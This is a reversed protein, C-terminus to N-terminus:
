SVPPAITINKDYDSFQLQIVLKSRDGSKSTGEIYAQRIRYDAVDLWVKFKFGTFQMDLFPNKLVPAIEVVRCNQGDVKETGVYKISTISQFDFNALPQLESVFLASQSLSNGQLTLWRGSFQDKMYSTDKIQIFDVPTNIMTGTISVRDPAVWKGQIKSIYTTRNDVELTSESRYLFSSSARTNAVAKQLMEEPPLRMSLIYQRYGLDAVLFLAALALVVMVLRRRFILFQMAAM